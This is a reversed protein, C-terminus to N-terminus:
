GQSRQDLIHTVRHTLQTTGAQGCRLNADIQPHHNKAPPRTRTIRIGRSHGVRYQDVRHQHRHRVLLLAAPFTAQRDRSQTAPYRSPRMQTVGTKILITLRDVANGGAKMGPNNLVLAVM